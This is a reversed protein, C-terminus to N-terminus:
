LRVERTITRYDPIQRQFLRRVLNREGGFSGHKKSCSTSWTDLVDSGDDFLEYTYRKGLPCYGSRDEPADAVERTYGARELAALFERYASPSNNFSERSIVREEYGELVEVFREAQSVSIRIARREEQAVIPGYVTYEVRSGTDTYETLVISRDGQQGGDDGRSFVALLAIFMVFVVAIVGIVYKM